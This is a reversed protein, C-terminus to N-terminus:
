KLEKALISNFYNVTNDYITDKTYIKYGGIILNDLKNNLSINRNHTKNFKNQIKEITSKELLEKTYITADEGHASREDLSVIFKKINIKNKKIIKLLQTVRPDNNEIPKEKVSLFLSTILNNTSIKKM